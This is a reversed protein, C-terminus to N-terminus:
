GNLIFECKEKENLKVCQIYTELKKFRLESQLIKEHVMYGGFLTAGMILLVTVGMGFFNKM